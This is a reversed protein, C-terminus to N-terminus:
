TLIPQILKLDTSSNWTEVFNVTPLDLADILNPLTLNPQTKKPPANKKLSIKPSSKSLSSKKGPLMQIPSYYKTEPLMQEPLM